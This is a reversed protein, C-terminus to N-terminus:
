RGSRNGAGALPVRFAAMERDNRVLLIDGALVPHNWTKGEIARFRTIESFQGPTAAVLVLEGDETLVLLLDQGPLVVLQGNGYRGGKWKRAGDELDVCALISGDFGYAHGNHVVYDNFYPKLAISTWREAVTWGGPGRTIALRRMGIGGGSGLTSFLVDGNAALAPQVISSGSGPWAHEWLVQGDGPAVSTVGAASQLLVQEVGDLTVLHPSSYSAGGNPGSWRPEGTARDYAMLKGQAAVIVTEGVVLPSSSFGWYPIKVGAEAAVNRSWAAAGSAADLANLIGTAGFAYVRGEHLTPTARPGAGANAEWFRATDRHEWVPQGTAAHYCAVIEEEGRQEQTYILGGRVAFSSWGPGVARRWMEVPPKASWDTEIQVRQAGRVVSDRNPGRFGPWDAAPEVPAPAAPQAAPEGGSKAAPSEQIAKEEATVAPTAPPAPIPAPQALLREEPTPSWRWAVDLGGAARIGDIRVLAWGGSALLITVAMLARRPGGALRHSAVAVVAFALMLLSGGYFVFMMGMGATAVSVHLIRSTALMAAIMLLVAGWREARPARSFFAWWVVIALAVGLGGLFWYMGQDPMIRPMVFWTLLQLTALVVGPWVRLPKPTTPSPAKPATM